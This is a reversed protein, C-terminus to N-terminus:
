RGLLFRGVRPPYSTVTIIPFFSMSLTFITSTEKLRHESDRGMKKKKKMGEQEPERGTM